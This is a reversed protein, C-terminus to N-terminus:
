TARLYDAGYMKGVDLAGAEFFLLNTDNRDNYIKDGV